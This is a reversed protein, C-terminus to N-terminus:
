KSHNSKTSLLSDDGRKLSDNFLITGFEEGAEEPSSCRELREEWVTVKDPCEKQVLERTGPYRFRRVCEAGNVGWAAEFEMGAEETRTQVGLTDYLVIPTGDRTYPIGKGCYDARAM